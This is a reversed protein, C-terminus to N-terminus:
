LLCLDDISPHHFHETFDELWLFIASQDRLDLSVMTGVVLFFYFGDLAEMYSFLINGDQM